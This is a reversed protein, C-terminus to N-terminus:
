IANHPTNLLICAICALQSLVMPKGLFASQGVKNCVTIIVGYTINLEMVELDKHPGLIIGKWWWEVGEEPFDAPTKSECHLWSL